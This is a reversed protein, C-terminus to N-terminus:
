GVKRELEPQTEDSDPSDPNQGQEAPFNGVPQPVIPIEAADLAAALVANGLAAAQEASADASADREDRKERRRIERCIKEFDEAGTSSAAYRFISKGYSPAEALRVNQHIVANFVLGGFHSKLEDVVERSLNTRTDFMCPIIGTIELNENLREKVLKVVEVLRSLGHLAFFQAQIPIFVENVANLANLVLLGLSPPCDILIYDYEAGGEIMKRLAKKLLQERGLMGALEVEAGSLDMTSPVFDFYEGDIDRVAEALTVDGSLVSYITKEKLDASLNVHVTLNAQPDMDILLVRHRWRALCSAINIACTTKGVGGKQNMFAITRM